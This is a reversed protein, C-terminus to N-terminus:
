VFYEHQLSRDTTGTEREVADFVIVNHVKSNDDLTLIAADNGCRYCYNPATWITILQSDFMWKYGEMVLQHARAIMDIGNAHTFKKLADEGFLYGAGRNSVAFGSIGEEPDSWLLDCFPGEQPIEQFRNVTTRIQDITSLSPSLGGHIAFVCGDLMAGLPLVDFVDCCYRWVNRSGYKRYCEDYFGYVQTLHRSEHIAHVMRIRVPYHVKLALLLLFTEISHSGRDVYDGMFLYSSQPVDGGVRFLELVDYFQGHLDGCLTIPSSLSLVNEESAIIMAAKACLLKVEHEKSSM